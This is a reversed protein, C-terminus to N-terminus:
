EDKDEPQEKVDEWSRPPSCWAVLDRGVAEDLPRDMPIIGPMNIPLKHEEFIEPPQPVGGKLMLCISMDYPLGTECVPHLGASVIEWKGAVRVQELREKVRICFIFHCPYLTTLGMLRNHQRKPVKWDKFTGGAEDVMDLMGGLGTWEHSTSDVIIVRPKVLAAAKVALAYRKPEFPPELDVVSFDYTWDPAGFTAAKDGQPAYQTARSNETDIVVIPEGQALGTAVRLASLTKGSGTPGCLAILLSRIQRRAPQAVMPPRIVKKVVPPAM